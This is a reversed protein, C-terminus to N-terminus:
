NDLSEVGGYLACVLLVNVASILTRSRANFQVRYYHCCNLVNKRGEQRRREIKCLFNISKKGDISRSV